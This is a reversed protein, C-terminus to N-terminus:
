LIFWCIRSSKEVVYDFCFDAEVMLPIAFVAIITFSLRSARFIQSLVGFRDGRGGIICKPLFANMLANSLTKTYGALAGGVSYSANVSKYRIPPFFKNLVISIGSQLVDM